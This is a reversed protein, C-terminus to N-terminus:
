TGGVVMFTGNVVILAHLGYKFKQVFTGSRSGKYDNMWLLAPFVLSLPAFCLAIALALLYNLIPVAEAVIYAITGLVLNVGLWTSEHM